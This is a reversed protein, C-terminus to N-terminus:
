RRRPRPGASPGNEPDRDYERGSRPAGPTEPPPTEASARDSSSRQIVVAARHSVALLPRGARGAPDLLPRRAVRGQGADRVFKEVRRSRRTGVPRMKERRQRSEVVVLDAPPERGGIPMNAVEADGIADAALGDLPRPRQGVDREEDGLAVPALDGRADGLPGFQHVADEGVDVTRVREHGRAGQRGRDDGAARVVQPRHLAHRRRPAAPEPEVGTVDAPPGVAAPPDEAVAGLRRGAGPGRELVPEHERPRKRIEVLVHVDGPQRREEALKALPQGARGAAGVRPDAQEGGAREALGVELLGIEGAVEADEEDLSVVQGDVVALDVDARDRSQLPGVDEPATDIGVPAVWELGVGTRPEAHRAQKLRDTVTGHRHAIHRAAPDDLRPGQEAEHRREGASQEIRVQFQRVDGGPPTPLLPFPGLHDLPEVVEDDPRGEGM